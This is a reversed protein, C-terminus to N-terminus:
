SPQQNKVRSRTTKEPSEPKGREEFISMELNLNLQMCSRESFWKRTHPAEQTFVM